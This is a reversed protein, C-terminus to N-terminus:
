RPFGTQTREIALARQELELALAELHAIAADDTISKALRRCRQAEERLVAPDKM